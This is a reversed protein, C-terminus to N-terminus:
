IKLCSIEFDFIFYLLWPFHTFVYNKWTKESPFNFHPYKYEFNSPIIINSVILESIFKWFNSLKYSKSLSEPM